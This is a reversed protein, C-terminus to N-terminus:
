YSISEMDEEEQARQIKSLEKGILRENMNKDPREHRNRCLCKSCFFVSCGAFLLSAAFLGINVLVMFLVDREQHCELPFHSSPKTSWCTDNCLELLFLYCDYRLKGGMGLKAVCMLGSACLVVGLLVTFTQFCAPRRM